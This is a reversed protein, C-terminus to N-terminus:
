IKLFTKFDTNSRIVCWFRHNLLCDPQPLQHFFSRNCEACSVLGQAYKWGFLALCLADANSISGMANSFSEFAPIESLLKGGIKVSTPIHSEEQTKIWHNYRELILSKTLVPPRISTPISSRWVCTELHNSTLEQIYKKVEMDNSNLTPDKIPISLTAMCETCKLLDKDALIWGTRACALSSLGRPKGFWRWISFTSLREREPGQLEQAASNVTKSDFDAVIQMVSKLSHKPMKIFQQKAILGDRYALAPFNAETM